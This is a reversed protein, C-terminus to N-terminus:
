KKGWGERAPRHAGGSLVHGLLQTWDGAFSNPSPEVPGATAAARSAVEATVQIRTERM